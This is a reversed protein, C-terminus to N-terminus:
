IHILSLLLGNHTVFHGKGKEALKFCGILTEDNQQEQAVVSNSVLSDTSNEILM